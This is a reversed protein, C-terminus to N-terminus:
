PARQGIRHDRVHPGLALRDLVPKFELWCCAPIGPLHRSGRGYGALNKVMMSRKGAQFIADMRAIVANAMRRMTGLKQARVMAFRQNRMQGFHTGARAM